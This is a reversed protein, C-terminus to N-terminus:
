YKTLSEIIGRRTLLEPLVLPEARGPMYLAYVPVGGRGLKQIWEAIVPDNETFDGELLLVNRAAFAEQVERSHLVPTNIKCTTCWTAWFNIFVPRGAAIGAEVAEPSFTEWGEEASYVAERYAGNGSAKERDFKLVTLAGAAVIGAALAITIWRRLRPSGPGAFRGYGWAAVALIGMFALVRLLGDGGVQHYLTLLLYLVTGLLLFVMAEKFINMWAGPKPLKQILGPWAGLLVFPLAFGLGVLMFIAFIVAPPHSFAFGLATGLFPATCPTAVLVAFMGTFFSGTYGGRKGAKAALGGGLANLTFVDFMSLGFVFIVSVLVLVFVPNQFQFGWGALEGSAKIITVIGALAALSVLIGLAYFLSGIFIRRRDQGSAQVLNLAKISLLPLVCPMVNLLLGGLLALILFKLISGATGAAAPLVGPVASGAGAAPIVTIDPNFTVTKPIYCTGEENCYQYGAT